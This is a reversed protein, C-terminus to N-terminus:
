KKLKSHKEIHARENKLSTEYRSQMNKHDDLGRKKIYDQLDRIMQNANELQEELPVEDDDDDDSHDDM